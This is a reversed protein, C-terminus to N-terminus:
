KIRIEIQEPDYSVKKGYWFRSNVKLTRLNEECDTYSQYPGIFTAYFPKGSLSPYDPIWLYGANVTGETKMTQVYNRANVEDTFSGTVIIYCDSKYILRGYEDTYSLEPGPDNTVPQKVEADERTVPASPAPVPAPSAASDIAVPMSVTEKKKKNFFIFYVGAGLGLVAVALLVIWQNKQPRPTGYNHNAAPQPRVGVPLTAGCGICFKATDSNQKGCKICYSM